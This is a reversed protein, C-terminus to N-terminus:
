GAYKATASLWDICRANAADLHVRASFTHDAGPLDVRSTTKRELVRRWRHDVACLDLFEKATLDQESLLLLLTGCFGELGLLMREVYPLTPSPAATARAARGLFERAAAFPNLRMALLKSWFSRDFLRQLYYHRLMVRESSVAGRVWPNALILHTVRPDQACYMAAASAGDCLGWLVVRRVRPAAALLADVASRIDRDIEEFTRALAGSDGMGRADFRLVPYGATAYARASLVFQRHSGVRYQPGGVVIVVGVDPQAAAVDPLHLISVLAQGECDITIARESAGSM